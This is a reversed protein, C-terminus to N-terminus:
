PHAQKMLSPFVEGSAFNFLVVGRRIKELNHGRTNTELYNIRNMHVNSLEEDVEDMVVLSLYPM